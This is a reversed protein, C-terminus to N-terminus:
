GLLMLADNVDGLLLYIAGAVVLLLFMPERLVELVIGFLNRQGDAPLENPGEADLRARAEAETLGQAAVQDHRTPDM